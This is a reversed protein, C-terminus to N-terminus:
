AFRAQGERACLWYALAGSALTGILAPLPAPEAREFASRPFSFLVALTTANFTAHLLICPWLSGHARRLAGLTLAVCLLAPWSRPELHSVTFCLSTIWASWAVGLAPQIRAFLAGRFFLEEVFPVCGAVLAFLTAREMLSEPMLRLAREKLVQDPLPAWSQMTAELFEAPGHLAVGLAAALLAVRVSPPRGLQLAPREPAPVLVACIALYVLVELLAAFALHHTVRPWLASAVSLGLSLTVMALLTTVAAFGFGLALRTRHSM